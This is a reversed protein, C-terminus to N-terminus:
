LPMFALSFMGSCVSLHGPIEAPQAGVVRSRETSPIARREPQGARNELSGEAMLARSDGTDAM